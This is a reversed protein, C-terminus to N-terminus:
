SKQDQRDKGHPSCIVILLLLISALSIYLGVFFSQPHFVFEIDVKGSPIQVARFVGFATIIPVNQGNINAKWGPYNNDSLFLYAGHKTNTTIEVRTASYKTIEVTNDKDKTFQNVSDTTLIIQDRFNQDYQLQDLTNEISASPTAQYYLRVRPLVTANELVVVPGDEFVPHFKASPFAGQDYKGEPTIKYNKTKLAIVYKNGALDFLPSKFNNINLYRTYSGSTVKKASFKRDSNDSNLTAFYTAYDKPTLPDYGSISPFGGYMWTNAPLVPGSEGALRYLDINNKLYEFTPNSSQSYETRSFPTFKIAYRLLDFCILLLMLTAFINKFKAFVTVGTAAFILAIPLLLNRTSIPSIAIKYLYICLLAFFVSFILYTKTKIHELSVAALVAATFTTVMLWRSAYGTSILPLHYKYVAQSLPNDFALILSGFFLFYFLKTRWSHKAFLGTLCLVLAILSFYGSTEQYQMFGFFNNTVPNGFYDPALLTVLNKLPLIGNQYENINNDVLRISRTLLEATPLLQLSATLCGLFLFTGVSLIKKNRWFRFLIYLSSILLVYFAPQFFGGTLVPYLCLALFGLHKTLRTLYYKEVFFLILPLWLLIQGSTAYELYTMSFGSFAFIVAGLCASIKSLKIEKLFLYMFSMSLFPQFFVMIAYGWINGFILMLINLPYFPASQWNALLPYGSFSLPNWLPWQGSRILDMAYARWPYLQSFVDTLAMNKYPIGAIYGWFKAAWPYYVGALADTPLPVLGSFLPRFLILTLFLFFLYPM